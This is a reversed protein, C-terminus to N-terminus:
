LKALILCASAGGLGNNFTMATKLPHQEVARVHRVGNCQPAVHELNVTPAVFGHHLMLTAYVAEQSATAGQAHGSIGKTSSIMPQEGFLRRVVEVETRDGEPTGTGHSNIYDIQTVGREAATRMAAQISAELGKGSNILMDDGDNAAGYGVIEGYVNADRRRAHELSELVMIGAGASMVFGQRDRDYPRCAQTPRDNFDTPMGDCNDASLGIQKWTDEEASGCICVDQVGYKILEYAHGINYLGTACAASLSCVRGQIGLLAALGAAVTSNMIKIVGLAGVSWPSGHERIAEDVGPVESIGALCTGAVIGTTKVNLDDVSLQADRLAELTAVTAYAACDSMTRLAKRRIRSVDLDKVPAYVCCRFGLAQMEPMFVMGSRGQQLSEVAAEIGNGISSVVGLGTVVVRNM